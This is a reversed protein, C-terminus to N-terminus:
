HLNAQQLISRPNHYGCVDAKHAVRNGCAAGWFIASPTTSPGDM